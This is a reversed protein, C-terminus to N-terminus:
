HLKVRLIWVQQYYFWRAVHGAIIAALCENANTPMIWSAGIQVSSPTVVTVGAIAANIAAYFTATIAALVGIAVLTIAVRKTVFKAFFEVIGVFLGGFLAALLPM